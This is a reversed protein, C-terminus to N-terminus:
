RILADFRDEGLLRELKEKHIVYEHINYTLVSLKKLKGLEGAITERTLGVMEAITAHTLDLRVTFMGPKSEVGHSFMLYYLTHLVKERARSQELATIRILAGTYNSLVHDFVKALLAPDDQIKQRLVDRPLAYLECDTVAEYYYLVSMARGFVWADPLIDGPVLFAAIQEDGSNNISYAKIVGKSLVFASRPVEGQHLVISRKKAIRRIAEHKISQLLTLM